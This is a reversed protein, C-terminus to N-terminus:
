GIQGTTHHEYFEIAHRLPLDDDFYGFLSQQADKKMVKEIITAPDIREHEHLSVTDVDVSSKEHRSAWSLYPDVHPNHIYTKKSQDVDTQHDVLGAPPNNKRKENHTYRDVKKNKTQKWVM